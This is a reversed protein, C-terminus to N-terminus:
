TVAASRRQTVTATVDGSLAMSTATFKMMKVTGGGATPVNAAGQYVFGALTASDATIVSSATAAELNPGDARRGKHRSKGPQGPQGPQGPSPSASPQPGPGSGTGPSSPSPTPTPSPNPSPLCIILLICSGAAQQPAATATRAGPAGLLSALLVLPMAAVALYRLGSPAGPE